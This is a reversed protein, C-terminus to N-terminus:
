HLKGTVKVHTGSMVQFLLLVLCIKEHAVEFSTEEIEFSTNVTSKPVNFRLGIFRTKQLDLSFSVGTYEYSGQASLRKVFTVAENKVETKLKVAPEARLRVHEFSSLSALDGLSDLLVIALGLSSNIENLFNVLSTLGSEPICNSAAGSGDLGCSRILRGCAGFVFAHLVFKPVDAIRGAGHDCGFDSSSRKGSSMKFVRVRVDEFEVVLDIDPLTDAGTSFLLVSTHLNSFVEGLGM